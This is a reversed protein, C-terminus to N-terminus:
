FMGFIFASVFLTAIARRSNSVFFSSPSSSSSSGQDQLSQNPTENAPDTNKLLSVYVKTPQLTTFTVSDMYYQPRVVMEVQNGDLLDNEDFCKPEDCSIDVEDSYNFCITGASRYATAAYQKAPKIVGGGTRAPVFATFFARFVVEYPIPKTVSEGCIDGSDLNHCYRYSLNMEREASPDYMTQSFWEEVPRPPCM